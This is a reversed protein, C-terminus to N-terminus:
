GVVRLKLTRSAGSEYPYGAQEPVHARFRLAYSGSGPQSPVKWSCGFGRREGTREHCGPVGIWGARAKAQVSVRRSEAFPPHLRGRFRIRDGEKVTQDGAVRLSPKARVNLTLFQEVPGGSPPWHALRLERSPGPPVRLRFRGRKNAGDTDAITEAALPQTLTRQGLCTQADQVATGDPALARGSATVKGGYRVTRTAEGPPGFGHELTAAGVDSTPCLNDVRVDRTECDTNPTSSIALDAVCLQVTNLGQRFPPKSTDVSVSPTGSTPCPHLLTAALTDASALACSFDSRGAQSGNANIAAYHLGGGVDSASFNMSATGRVTRTGDLAGTASGLAPAWPDEITIVMRHAMTFAKTGAPCQDMQCTIRVQIGTAQPFGTGAWETRHTQGDLPSPNFEAPAGAPSIAWVQPQHGDDNRGGALMEIRKIYANAYVAWGASAGRPTWNSSNQDVRMVPSSGDATCPTEAYRNFQTTDFSVWEPMGAVYEPYCQVTIYTGGHAPSAGISLAVFTLIAAGALMRRVTM